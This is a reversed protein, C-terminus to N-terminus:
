PLSLLQTSVPSASEFDSVVTWPVVIEQFQHHGWKVATIAIAGIMGSRIARLVEPHVLAEAYGRKNLEWEKEDVSGSADIALVLIMDVEHKRFGEAHVVEVALLLAIAAILLRVRALVIM